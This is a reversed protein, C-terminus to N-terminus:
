RPARTRRVLGLAGLGAVLTAIVALGPPSVSPVSASDESVVRIDIQDIVVSTPVSDNAVTVDLFYVLWWWSDQDAV